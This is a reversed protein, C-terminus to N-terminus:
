NRGSRIQSEHLRRNREFAEPGTFQGPHVYHQRRRKFKSRKSAGSAVACGCPGKSCSLGQAVLGLQGRPPVTPFVGARSGALLAAQRCARREGGCSPPGSRDQEGSSGEWCGSLQRREQEPRGRSRAGQGRIHCSVRPPVSALCFQKSCNSSVSFKPPM